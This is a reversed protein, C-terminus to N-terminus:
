RITEPEARKIYRRIVKLAHRADSRATWKFWNSGSTTPSGTGSLWYPWRGNTAVITWNWGGTKNAEIRAEFETAEGESM